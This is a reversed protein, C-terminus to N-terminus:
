GLFIQLAYVYLQRGAHPGVKPPSPSNCAAFSSAVRTTALRKSPPNPPMSARSNKKKFPANQLM